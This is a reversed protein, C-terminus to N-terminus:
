PIEVQTTYDYHLLIWRFKEERGPAELKFNKLLAQNEIVSDQAPNGGSQMRQIKIPKGSSDILIYAVLGQLRAAPFTPISPFESEVFTSADSSETKALNDAQTSQGSGSLASKGSDQTDAPSESEALTKAQPIILGTQAAKTALGPTVESSDQTRELTSQSEENLLTEDATHTLLTSAELLEIQVQLNEKFAEELGQTTLSLTGLNFLLM